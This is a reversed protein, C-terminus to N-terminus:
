IDGAYVPVTIDQSKTDGVVMSEYCMAKELVCWVKIQEPM